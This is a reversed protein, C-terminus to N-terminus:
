HSTRTTIEELIIRTFVVGKLRHDSGSKARVATEKRNRIRRIQETINNLLTARRRNINGNSIITCTLRNDRNGIKAQPRFNLVPHIPQKDRATTNTVHKTSNPTFIRGWIDILGIKETNPLRRNIRRIDYSRRIASRSFRFRVDALHSGTNVTIRIVATVALNGLIRM